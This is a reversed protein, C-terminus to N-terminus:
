MGVFTGKEREVFKVIKWIKAFYFFLIFSRATNEVIEAQQLSMCGRVVDYARELYGSYFCLAWM